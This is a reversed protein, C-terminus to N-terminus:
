RALGDHILYRGEGVYGNVTEDIMLIDGIRIAPM